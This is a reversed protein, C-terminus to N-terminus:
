RKRRFFKIIRQLMGMFRRPKKEKPSTKDEFPVVSNGNKKLEDIPHKINTNNKDICNELGNRTTEKNLQELSTDIQHKLFSTNKIDESPLTNLKDVVNFDRKILSICDILSQKDIGNFDFKLTKEAFREFEIKSIKAINFLLQQMWMNRARNVLCHLEDFKELESMAKRANELHSHRQIFQRFQVLYITEMQDKEFEKIIDTRCQIMKRKWIESSVDMNSLDFEDLSWKRFGGEYLLSSIVRIDNNIADIVVTSNDNCHVKQTALYSHNNFNGTNNHFRSKEELNVFLRNSPISKTVVNCVEEVLQEEAETSTDTTIFSETERGPLMPRGLDCSSLLSSGQSGSSEIFSVNLEHNASNCNPPKYELPNNDEDDLITMPELDDVFSDSGVPKIPSPISPVDLVCLSKRSSVM